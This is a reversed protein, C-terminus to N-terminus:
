MLPFDGVAAPVPFLESSKWSRRTVRWYERKEQLRRSTGSVPKDRALLWRYTRVAHCNACVIDCKQIEAMLRSRSMLM